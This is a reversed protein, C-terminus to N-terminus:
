TQSSPEPRVHLSFIPTSTTQASTLEGSHIANIIARTYRLKIRSGVGYRGGTWRIQCIVCVRDLGPGQAKHLKIHVVPKRPCRGLAASLWCLPMSRKACRRRRATKDRQMPHLGMEM